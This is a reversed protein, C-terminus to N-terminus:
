DEQLYDEIREKQRLLLDIIKRSADPTYLAEYYLHLNHREFSQLARWDKNLFLYRMFFSGRVSSSIIYLLPKEAETCNDNRVKHISQTLETRIKKRVELRENCVSKRSDGAQNLLKYRSMIKDNCAELRYLRTLLLYPTVM